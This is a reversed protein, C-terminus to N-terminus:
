WAIAGLRVHGFGGRDGPSYWSFVFQDPTSLEAHGHYAYCGFGGGQCTDPVHGAPGATWPGTPSTATYLRFGSTAFSTKVIMALRHPGVGTYDAVHVSWPTVGSIISTVATLDETWQAPGDGPRGWWHYNAGNGWANPDAPVRAVLVIDPNLQRGFLYLYGDDGFVPSGLLQAAPLGAQLPAAVFPTGTSVFRNTAPDYEVLKLRETPWGGTKAVCLEGYVILMRETGPIQALGTPWSAPYSNNTGCAAPPDHPTLLGQPRPLFPAPSARGPQPAAPPTPLEELRTPAEGRVHPGAAATTGALFAPGNRQVTDGFLWLSRSPSYAASLGADRSIANANTDATSLARGLDVTGVTDPGATRFNQTASYDGADPQSGPKSLAGDRQGICLGPQEVNRDGYGCFQTRYLTDPRLGTIPQRVEVFGNTDVNATVPNTHQVSTVGDPWYQFWSTCPNDTTEALCSTQAHLTASTSTIGTPRSSWGACGAAALGFVAATATLRVLGPRTTM